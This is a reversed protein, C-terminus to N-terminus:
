ATRSTSCMISCRSSLPESGSSKASSKSLTRSNLSVTARSTITGRVCIFAISIPVVM